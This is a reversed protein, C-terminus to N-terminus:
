SGKSSDSNPQNKSSNSPTGSAGEPETAARARIVQIATKRLNNLLTQLQPDEVPDQLKLTNQRAGDTVKITYQQMDAGMGAKRDTTSSKNFFDAANIQGELAQAQDAPLEGTDITVPKALGPFYALGGEMQFQVKV